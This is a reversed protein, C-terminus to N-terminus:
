SRWRLLNRREKQITICNELVPGNQRVKGSTAGLLAVQGDFQGRNQFIMKDEVTGQVQPLVPRLGPLVFSRCILRSVIKGPSTAAPLFKINRPCM